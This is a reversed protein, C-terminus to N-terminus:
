KSGEKLLLIIKQDNQVLVVRGDGIEEVEFGAISQHLMLPQNNIVAMPANGTFTAQLNLSPELEAKLTPQKKPQELGFSASNSEPPSASGKQYAFINRSLQEPCLALALERKNGSIPSYLDKMTTQAIERHAPYAKLDPYKALTYSSGHRWSRITRQIPGKLILVLALVGTLLMVKIVQPKTLNKEKM